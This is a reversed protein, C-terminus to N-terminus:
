KYTASTKGSKDNYHIAIESVTCLDIDGWQASSNDDKYVVKLDWHCSKDSRHFSIDVNQGDELIDQGLVDEQWDDAKSPSVYVESIDYGTKNVLTFDQKADAFTASPLAVFAAVAFAASVFAGFKM